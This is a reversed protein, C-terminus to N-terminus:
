PTRGNMRPPGDTSVLWENMLSEAFGSTKWFVPFQIGPPEPVWNREMNKPPTPSMVTADPMTGDTGARMDSVLDPVPIRVSEPALVKEPPVVTLAPLTMAVVEVARPAPATTFLPM